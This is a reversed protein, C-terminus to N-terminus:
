NPIIKEEKLPRSGRGLNRKKSNLFVYL